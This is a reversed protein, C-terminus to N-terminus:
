TDAFSLDAESALRDALYSLQLVGGLVSPCRPIFNLKQCM